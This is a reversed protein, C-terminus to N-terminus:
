GCGAEFLNARSGPFYETPVPPFYETPALLMTAIVLARAMFGLSGASKADEQEIALHADLLERVWPPMEQNGRFDISLPALKNGAVKSSKIKRDLIANLKENAEQDNSAPREAVLKSSDHIPKM